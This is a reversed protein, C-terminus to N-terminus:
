IEAALHRQQDVPFWAKSISQAHESVENKGSLALSSAM